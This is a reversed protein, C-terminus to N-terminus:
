EYPADEILDVFDAIAGSAAHISATAVWAEYRAFLEALAVRSRALEAEIVELSTAFGQEFARRQVRLSEDAVEGAASFTVHRELATHQTQVQQDVLLAIQRKLSARVFELESLSAEASSVRARRVGGDFFRWSLRLSVAWDPEIVSLDQTYLERRGLLFVNPRLNAQEARVLAEAQEIRNGLELLAPNSEAARGRWEAAETRRPVAPIRTLPEVPRDEALLTALASEALALREQALALEGQAEILAVDARLREARSIEGEEELRRANFALTRLTELSQQRVAMVDFAVTQGFYRKVLEVVLDAQTRDVMAQNAGVGARAAERGASIRGGLYIPQVAVLAATSFSRDQIPLGSPILGPPLNVGLDQELRRRVGGLDLELPADLRTVGGEIEISPLRLGDAERQRSRAQEIGMRAAALDENQATLRELAARFDLGAAQAFGTGPSAALILFFALLFLRAPKSNLM